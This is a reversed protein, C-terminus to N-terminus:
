KMSEGFRIGFMEQLYLIMLPTRNTCGNVLSSIQPFEKYTLYVASTHAGLTEIFHTCFHEHETRTEEHKKVLGKEYEDVPMCGVVGIQSHSDTQMRYAFLSPMDDQIFVNQSLLKTFRARAMEYVNNSSTYEEAL